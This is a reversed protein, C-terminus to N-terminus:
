AATYPAAIPTALRIYPAPFLPPTMPLIAPFDRPSGGHALRPAPKVPGASLDSGFPM